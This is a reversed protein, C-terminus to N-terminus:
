RDDINIPTRDHDPDPDADHVRPFRKIVKAPNGSVMTFPPVNQMVVAGSAVVAARGVTVGPMIISNVGIFCHDELVVPKLVPPMIGTDRLYHPAKIHTMIVAGATIRVDDGLTVNEPYATEVISTPDIFCGRGMRVGRWRHIMMIIGRPAWRVLNGLLWNRWFYDWALSLLSRGRDQASNRADAWLSKRHRHDTPAADEGASDDTAAIEREKDRELLRIVDSERVLGRDNFRGIDIAYREILAQAKKSVRVGTPMDTSVAPPSAAAAPTPSSSGSAAITARNSHVRGIVDGVAVESGEAHIIELYGDSTVDIDMIMKSTEVCAVTQGESIQDGSAFAWDVVTVFDDNVTEHPVVVDIPGPDAAEPNISM